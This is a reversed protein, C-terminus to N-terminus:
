WTCLSLCCQNHPYKQNRIFQQYLQCVAPVIVRICLLLLNFYFIFTVNVRYYLLIAYGFLINRSYHYM